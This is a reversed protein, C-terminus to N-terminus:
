IIEIIIFLVCVYRFGDKCALEEPPGLPYRCKCACLKEDWDQVTLDCEDPTTVCEHRCSTHNKMTVTAPDSSSRLFVQVNLEDYSKVVCHQVKPSITGASGACRHLKVFYPFYGHHTPDVPVVTEYTKCHINHM